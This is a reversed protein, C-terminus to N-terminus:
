VIRGKQGPSKKQGERGHDADAGVGVSGLPGALSPRQGPAEDPEKLVLWLEQSHGAAERM